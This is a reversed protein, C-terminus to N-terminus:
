GKFSGMEMGEYLLKAHNQTEMDHKSMEVAYVCICVCVICLSSCAKSIYMLLMDKKM